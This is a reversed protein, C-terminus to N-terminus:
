KPATMKFDTHCDLCKVVPPKHQRHCDPCSIPEPHKDAPPSHPNPKLHKTYAAMAPYDGHCVMCSDDAVAAKSPNEKRHCDHCLVGVKAHKAPLPRKPEEAPASALASGLLLTLLIKPLKM